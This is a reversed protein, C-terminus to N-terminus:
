GRYGVEIEGEGRWIVHRNSMSAETHNDNSANHLNTFMTYHLVLVNNNLRCEIRRMYSWNAFAKRWSGFMVRGTVRCLATLIYLSWRDVPVAIM